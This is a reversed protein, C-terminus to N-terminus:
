KKEFVLARKMAARVFEYEHDRAPQLGSVKLAKLLSKERISHLSASLAKAVESDLGARAIWPKTVNDFSALVRLKGAKNMKM